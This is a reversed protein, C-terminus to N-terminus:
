INFVGSGLFKSIQKKTYTELSIPFFGCATLCCARRSRMVVIQLDQRLMKGFKDMPLNIWPSTYVASAIKASEQTVCDCSYTFMWLQCMGAFLYSIFSIRYSLTLDALIVQYGLFCFLISFMLIQGIVIITFIEELTECFDLLAQHQQIYNKFANYCEDSSDTNTDLNEKMKLIPVNAIRYQLIRFQCAVNLCLICFINDFCFYCSGAQNLAAISFDGWNFYLGRIQVWASFTIALITYGVVGIRFWEELRSTTLWFGVVRLYFSAVTFALDKRYKLNM